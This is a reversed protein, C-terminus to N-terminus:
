VDQTKPSPFPWSVYWSPKEEDLKELEDLTLNTVLENKSNGFKIHYREGQIACVVGVKGAVKRKKNGPGRAVAKVRVVNDLKIIVSEDAAANTEAPVSQETSQGTSNTKKASKATKKDAVMKDLMSLPEQKSKASVKKQKKAEMITPLHREKIENVNVGCAEALNFLLIPERAPSLKDNFEWAEMQLHRFLIAEAVMLLLMSDSQQDLYTNREEATAEGLDHRKWFSHSGSNKFIFELMLLQVPRTITAIPQKRFSEYVDNRFLTHQEAMKQKKQQVAEKAQAAAKNAAAKENKKTVDEAVILGALELAARMATKDYLPEAGSELSAYAVPAPLQDPRLIDRLDKHKDDEKLDGYEQASDDLVAYDGNCYFQEAEDDVFVPLNESKADEIIQADHASGKAAFCDPDTCVDASIDPFIEPQNGTRKPCAACSGAKLLLDENQMDFRAATLQLMFRKALHEKAERYSLPPDNRLGGNWYTGGAMIEATAQAQLSPVPIRAILLGTSVDIDGNFIQDRVEQSLALLKLRGYVYSRSKGVSEAVQDATMHCESLLNQFGEAEEIEHVDERQLNEILQIERFERDTMDRVIVPIETLGALIAARYRREGAAIELCEPHNETDPHPRTLIAQLVGHVKISAALDALAADSMRRRPQYLAPIIQNTAALGYTPEVIANM